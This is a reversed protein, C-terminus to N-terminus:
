FNVELAASRSLPLTAQHITPLRGFMMSYMPNYQHQNLYQITKETNSRSWISTESDVSTGSGGPIITSTGTVAALAAAAAAAAATASATAAM